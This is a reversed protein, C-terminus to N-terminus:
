SVASRDNAPEWAPSAFASAPAERTLYAHAGFAVCTFLVDSVLTSWTWPIAAIYCTVLGGLDRSYLHTHEIWSFFNTVLYFMATGALPGSLIRLWNKGEGIVVRGILAYLIYCPYVVLRTPHFPSYHAQGFYYCLAIDAGIMMSVPLLAALWFPLKSGSYLGLAGMPNFGFAGLVNTLIRIAPSAVTLVSAIIRTATNAQMTPGDPPFFDPTMKRSRVAPPFM